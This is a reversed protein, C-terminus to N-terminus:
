QSLLEWERTRPVDVLSSITAKARPFRKRFVNRMAETAQVLTSVAYGSFGLVLGGRSINLASFRSIPACDIGHAFLVDAVSVDSISRDSLTKICNILLLNDM